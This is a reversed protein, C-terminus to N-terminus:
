VFLQLVFISNKQGCNPTPTNSRTPTAVEEKSSDDVPTINGSHELANIERQEFELEQRTPRFAHFALCTNLVSLVLSGYYFYGWSVGSSILLQCIIPSAVGGLGIFLQAAM